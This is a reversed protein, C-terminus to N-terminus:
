FQEQLRCFFVMLFHIFISSLPICITSSRHSTLLTQPHQSSSELPYITLLSVRQGWIQMAKLFIM